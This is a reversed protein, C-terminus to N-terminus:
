VFSYIEIYFNFEGVEYNEKIRVFLILNIEVKARVLLIKLISIAYILDGFLIDYWAVGRPSM